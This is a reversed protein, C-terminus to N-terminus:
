GKAMYVSRLDQANVTALHFDVFPIDVKVLQRTTCLIEVTRLHLGDRDLGTLKTEYTQVGRDVYKHM